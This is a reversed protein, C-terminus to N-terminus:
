GREWLGSKGGSKKLLKIEGIEMGKDVAKCMDYITLLTVSVGTLAEMEVGTKGVVKATCRAEISCTEDHCIFDIEVKTLNLIHCLPILESTRKTGMIGAVRAVGLVDGKKMDGGKVKEYCERSMRISGAATAERQTNDKESVDVMIADGNQNFHTFESMTNQESQVQATHTTEVQVTGRFGTLVAAQKTKPHAFVETVAGMQQLSGEHMIAVQDCLRYIEDRDHSVLIVPRDYQKLIQRMEVELQDRLYADLASFPEDLLIIDPKNVLIRALATRQQQGGSLEGPRHNELGRLQLKDIMEDAIKERVAKDKEWQLGCLINKRLTMNPFLGYNQFLYGVRRKQPPLNIGAERDFLTVGNLVIRGEDPTEIGAICKLTQSKGCGSAGLFGTIGDESKFKVNLTFDGYDKKIDVLLSM